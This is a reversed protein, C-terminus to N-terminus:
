NNKEKAVRSPTDKGSIISKSSIAISKIVEAMNKLDLTEIEDGPTHYFKESDMKSTSITHAPVGLAALTANDSRYFLNQQPYPDPEFHFKSNALNAQLIKGMDSKEYGTIYASNAGWKSETGIMEINFLAIVKAPDLQRSFYRSGFGGSEEGTFAVFILTRENHEMKKFYKSLLIMATIGSADDNAGNYISDLAANPKGIGLHDYHGSFIVYEDKRSKGPIVAVVNTLTSRFLEHEVAINYHLPDAATLVFLVNNNREFSQRKFRSLRAFDKALSTDVLVLYNSDSQIYKFAESNFKAGAAIHAKKYGSQDNVNLLATTTFAVISNSDLTQGNLSGSAHLQAPKIVSFQQRYSHLGELYDLHTARFQDEIFGTALEMTKSFPNRGGMMDSSLVKEINKVKVADIIRDIKQGFSLLSVFGAASLFLIKKM